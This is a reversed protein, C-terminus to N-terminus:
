KSRATNISKAIIRVLEDNEQIAQSIIQDQLVGTKNILKLWYMSERLEKLAIGLKHIFDKKSESGLAEQYNAGSSTGARFLQDGIRRGAITNPLKSVIRIIMSAFALLREALDYEREEKM